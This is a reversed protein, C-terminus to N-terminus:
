PAVVVCLPDPSPHPPAARAGPVRTARGAATQRPLPSSGCVRAMKQAGALSVDSPFGAATEALTAIRLAATRAAVSNPGPPLVTAPSSSSSSSLPPPPPPLNPERLLVPEVHTDLAFPAWQATMTTM